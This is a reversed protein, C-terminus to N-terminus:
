CKNKRPKPEKISGPLKEIDGYLKKKGLETLELYPFGQDYLEKCTEVPINDRSFDLEGHSQTVIRGRHVKVMKFYETWM